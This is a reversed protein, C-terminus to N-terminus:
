CLSSLNNQCLKNDLYEHTSVRALIRRELCNESWIEKKSFTSEDGWVEPSGLKTPRGKLQTFEGAAGEGRPQVVQPLLLCRHWMGPWAPTQGLDVVPRGRVHALHWLSAGQKESSTESQGLLLPCVFVAWRRNQSGAISFGGATQARFNWKPFEGRSRGRCTATPAIWVLWQMNESPARKALQSLRGGPLHARQAPIDGVGGGTKAGLQWLIPLLWSPKPWSDRKDKCRGGGPVYRM